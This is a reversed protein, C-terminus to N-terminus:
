THQYFLRNLAIHLQHFLYVDHFELLKYRQVYHLVVFLEFSTRPRMCAVTSDASSSCSSSWSDSIALNGFASFISFISSSSSSIRAAALSSSKSLAVCSRSM